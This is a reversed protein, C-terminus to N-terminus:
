PNQYPMYVNGEVTSHTGPHLNKLLQVQDQIGRFLNNRVDLNTIPTVPSSGWHFFLRGNNSKVIVNNGNLVVNGASAFDQLFFCMNDSIFTNNRFDLNLTDIVNCYIRTDGQFVNGRAAINLKQIGNSASVTAVRKLNRCVNNRLTLDGGHTGCWLLTVGIDTTAATDATVANSLINGDLCLNGGQLLFYTAGSDGYPNVVPNENKFINNRFFVTDRCSTYDYFEVDNRYYRCVSGIYKNFFLNGNFEVNAFTDIENFQVYVARRTLDENFFRNNSFLFDQIKCSYPQSDGSFLSFLVDNFMDVKDEGDYGYYFDNGTVNINSRTVNGKINHNADVVHSFFALTEDNGYKYFRNGMINVNHMEGRLWLCGGTSCNNYNTINCNTVTVNSCVRLDFNTCVANKLYSDVNNITVSNAHYIKVALKEANEWWLGTHESIRFTLDSISVAINNSLTGAIVFFCDRTFATFDPENTGNELVIISEGKGQGKMVVNCHFAVTGCITDSGIRDFNIFLTDTQTLGNSAQRLARTLEGSVESINVIRTEASIQSTCDLILVAALLLLYKKM